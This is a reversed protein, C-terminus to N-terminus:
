KKDPPTEKCIKVYIITVRKPNKVGTAKFMPIDMGQLESGGVNEEFGAFEMTNKTEPGCDVAIPKLEVGNTACGCFFTSIFFIILIWKM